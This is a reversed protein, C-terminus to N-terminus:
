ATFIPHLYYLLNNENEYICLNMKLNNLGRILWIMHGFEQLREHLM